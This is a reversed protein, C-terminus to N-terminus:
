EQAELRTRSFAVIGILFLIITPIIILAIDYAVAGIGTGFVLVSRLANAANFWPFIEFIQVPQGFLTGVYVKPLPFFAGTLFSIPVAFLLGLNGAQRETRAFAAVLLGLAISAIGALVGIVIAFLLSVIGGQWHFGLMVAVGFLIIVQLAAVFMWPISSGIFLDSSRMKSLKLRNLTGRDSEGALVQSISSVEILVGFIVIGPAQYDFQTFSTTGALPQAAISIPAASMAATAGFGSHAVKV